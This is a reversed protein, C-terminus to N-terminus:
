FSSFPAVAAQRHTLSRSGGHVQQINPRRTSRITRLVAAVAAAVVPNRTPFMVPDGGGEALVAYLATLLPSPSM